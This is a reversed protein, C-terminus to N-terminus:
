NENPSDHVIGELFELVEAVVQNVSVGSTEAVFDARAFAPALRSQQQQWISKSWRPNLRRLRIDEIDAQLAVLVDPDSRAWLSPVASHEQAAVHADYGHMTLARQLTSKGSACPGVIVIRLRARPDTM